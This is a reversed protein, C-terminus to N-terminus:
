TQEFDEANDDSLGESITIHTKFYDEIAAIKKVEDDASNVGIKDLLDGATRLERDGIRIYRRQLEQAMEKWTQRRVTDKGTRLVYSMKYDVRKLSNRYRSNTEEELGPINYAVAAYSRQDEMMSDKPNPFGNYGKVDYRMYDPVILRFIAKQIPVRYQYVEMGSATGPLLQTYSVEVEAGPEVAEMAVLYEPIGAESKIKKIKERAVEVVKGNPLITRAKIEYLKTGPVIPINFTNFVEAGKNDNLRIIHHTTFYQEYEGDDSKQTESCKEELIFVAPQKKFSDPITHLKPSKEWAVPHRPQAVATLCTFLALAPLLIKRFHM